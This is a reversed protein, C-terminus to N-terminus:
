HTARGLLEKRGTHQKDGCECVVGCMILEKAKLNLKLFFKKKGVEVFFPM